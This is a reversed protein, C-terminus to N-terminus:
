LIGGSTETSIKDDIYVECILHSDILRRYEGQGEERNQREGKEMAAETVRSRHAEAIVLLASVSTAGGDWQPFLHPKWGHGAPPGM